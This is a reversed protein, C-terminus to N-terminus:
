SYASVLQQLTSLEQTIAHIRKDLEDKDICIRGLLHGPDQRAAAGPLANPASFQPQPPLLDSPQLQTQLQTQNQSATGRLPKWSYSLGSDGGGITEYPMYSAFSEITKTIGSSTRRTEPRVEENSEASKSPSAAAPNKEVTSSPVADLQVQAQSPVQSPAQSPVQAQSPAQSPAKEKEKEAPGPEPHATKVVDVSGTSAVPDNQQKTSSVANRPASDPGPLIDLMSRDLKFDEVLRKVIASEPRIKSYKDIEFHTAKRKMLADFLRMVMVRTLYGDDNNSKKNKDKAQNKLKPPQGREDTPKLKALILSAADDETVRTDNNDNTDDNDDNTDNNDNNTVPADDDDDDDSYSERNETTDQSEKMARTDRGDRSNGGRDDLKGTKEKADHAVYDEFSEHKHLRFMYYAFCIALLAFFALAYM